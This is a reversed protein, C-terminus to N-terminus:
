THFSPVQVRLSAPGIAPSRTGPLLRTSFFFFFNPIQTDLTCIKVTCKRKAFFLLSINNNECNIRVKLMKEIELYTSVAQFICHIFIIESSKPIELLSRCIIQPLWAIWFISLRQGKNSSVILYCDTIQKPLFELWVTFNAKICNTKFAQKNLLDFAWTYYAGIRLNFVPRIKLHYNRVLRKCLSSHYYM